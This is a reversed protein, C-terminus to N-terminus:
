SLLVIVCFLVVTPSIDSVPSVWLPCCESMNRQSARQFFPQKSGAAHQGCHDILLDENHAPRHHKARSPIPHFCCSFTWAMLLAPALDPKLSTISTCLSFYENQWQLIWPLGFLFLSFCLLTQLILCTEISSCLSCDFYLFLHLNFYICLILSIRSILCSFLNELCWSPIKLHMCTYLSLSHGSSLFHSCVATHVKVKHLSAWRHKISRCCHTDKSQLQCGRSQCPSTYITYCKRESLSASLTSSDNQLVTILPM